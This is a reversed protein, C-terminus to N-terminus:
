RWVFWMMCPSNLPTSIRKSDNQAEGIVRAVLGANEDILATVSTQRTELNGRNGAARTGYRLLVLISRRPGRWLNQLSGLLDCSFHVYKSEAHNHYLNTRM